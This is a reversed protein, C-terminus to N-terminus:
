RKQKMVFALVEAVTYYLKPPIEMGIDVATYLARAIPKRELVPVDNERAIRKIREALIQRGKAVVQPADMEEEDWKLAVAIETPNTVVVDAEPVAEMMRTRAMENRRQTQAQKVEDSGEERKREEKRETKTMMLEKEYRYRQYAFDGVAIAVMVIAIAGLLEICMQSGVDLMSWPGRGALSSIWPLKARLIFYAVVCIIAMKALAVTLKMLASLSFLQKLGKIPNMEELDPKLKKLTLIPGTQVLSALLGFLGVFLAIPMVANLALRTSQRLV